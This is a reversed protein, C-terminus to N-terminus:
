ITLLVLKLADLNDQTLKDPRAIGLELAWARM